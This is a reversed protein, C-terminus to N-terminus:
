AADRQLERPAKVAQLAQQDSQGARLADRVIAYSERMQTPGPTVGVLAVTALRNLYDFPAYYAVIRHDEYIRFEPARVDDLALSGSPLVAFSDRFDSFRAPPPRRIRRVCRGSPRLWADQGAPVGYGEPEHPM